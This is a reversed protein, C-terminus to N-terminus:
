QTVGVTIAIFGLAKVLLDAIAEPKLGAKYYADIENIPVSVLNNWAKLAMERNALNERHQLDILRFDQEMRAARMPFVRTFAALAKYLERAANDKHRDGSPPSKLYVNWPKALACDGTAVDAPTSGKTKCDKGDNSVAFDNCAPGPHGKEAMHYAFSCMADRFNQLEETEGIYGRLQDRRIELRRAELADLTKAHQLLVSQHQLEILLNAVSPAEARAVMGAVDAALSSLGGAMLAARALDEDNEVKTEEGAAAKLLTVIAGIREEFLVKPAVKAASALAKQLAASKEAVTQRIIKAKANAARVADVATKHESKADAVAKKAAKVEAARRRKAREAKVIRKQAAAIAGSARSLTKSAKQWTACANAYGKHVASQDKFAKDFSANKDCAPPAAGVDKKIRRSQGSMQRETVGVKDTDSLFNRAATGTAFGLNDMPAVVEDNWTDAMPTDNDALELLSIDLQLQQNDRVIELEAALLADLNKRQDGVIGVVDAKAYNAKIAASAEARAKDYMRVDSLACGGLAVVVAAAAAGRIMNMGVNM